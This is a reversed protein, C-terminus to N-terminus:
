LSEYDSPSIGTVNKFARSFSRYDQYGTAYAVESVNMKKESLLKRAYDIRTKLVYDRFNQGTKNKFYITFYTESLNVALAVDKAKITGSIHENIYKKATEVVPDNFVRNTIYLDSYESFFATLWLCFDSLTHLFHTEEGTVASAPALATHRAFFLTRVHNALYLCMGRVFDPPPMPVFLLSQLFSSCYDSIAQRNGVEMASLLRETHIDSVSFSPETRCIMSDDYLDGDIEYIHYSLSQLASQYSVAAQSLGSVTCGIGAYYRHRDADRLQKLAQKLCAKLASLTDASETNVIAILREDQHIWLEYSFNDLAKSFVAQARELLTIIASNNSSAVSCVAVCLPSNTVKLRLMSFRRSIEASDRIGNRILQNLFFIRSSQMLAEYDADSVSSKKALIESFQQSLEDKFEDIKLPKLFYRNAGYRIAKQALTFDNYGSLIIFHSEIGAEKALRIVELGDIGPMKIDIIVLDPRHRRISALASIGDQEMSVVRAHLTEWPIAEFLGNRIAAEDDAIIVSISLDTM